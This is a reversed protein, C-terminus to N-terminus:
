TAESDDPSIPAEGSGPLDLRARLGGLPSDELVLGGGHLDALDRVIALGFGTGPAAEDVKMGRRGVERRLAESLGPGDDDVLLVVTSAAATSTISVRGRAWKCANDLLNGLMEELDEREARVLHGPSVKVEFALGREAYLRQLTRVLGEVSAAVPRLPALRAGKAAARAQALHYDVQRRMREVQQHITAALDAQGAAAAREAEQAIVALPTKLGHALDGAQSQARAVSRERDELLANLDSVLPAVESPYDGEILHQRGDRVAGLRERLRSLPSMGTKVQTLGAALLGVAVVSMAGAHVLGGTAGPFRRVIAIVVLHTVVVLGATWLLAALVLRARLSTM